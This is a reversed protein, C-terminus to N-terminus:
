FETIAKDNCHLYSTKMQVSLSLLITDIMLCLYLLHAIKYVLNNQIYIEQMARDLATLDEAVDELYVFM